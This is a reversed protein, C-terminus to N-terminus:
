PSVEAAPAAAPRVLVQEAQSQRLAILTGRVHYAVSGGLPNALRHEIVSGPVFGLDLLRSREAGRCAPLLSVMCASKGAPLDSLRFADAPVDEDGEPLPGVRVLAALEPELSVVRAELQLQCPGLFNGAASKAASREPLRRFRMGAHVGAKELKRYLVAPEDEIHLIVGSAGAPWDLLEVGQRAPLLGERTPIPDGHPDFRPHGLEAALSEVQGRSLTHERRHAIGHWDAAPVSSLRALKTEMLRHARMVLVALERGEPTLSWQGAETVAFGCRASMMLGPLAREHSINAMAALTAEGPRTGQHECELLARLLDEIAIRQEGSLHSWDGSPWRETDDHTQTSM